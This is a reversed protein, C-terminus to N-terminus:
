TLLFQHLEALHPTIDIGKEALWTASGYTDRYREGGDCILTVVSGREGNARMEKIIQVAAAMNTGTSGGVDRRTAERVWHMAAISLADPVQTMRDIVTPLFSPEVRPRGIGEIRSGSGPHEDGSEWSPYFASGEPDAVCLRTQHRRYRIYRGITASTGGTGAGVVIWSPEPHRELSMQQFISEAINNNGRWDTAREAYTFQDMYHGGTEAALRHSEAYITGPDDVLHCKGGYFEIIERKEPSTTAPIVAIFPLGLLRAFYAESVATSGSSAEIITTTPGIWGNALGYLFLSRALRHKLSGTPHVSEDKLYLDVGWHSPLPFVHLHTDCSRNADAEVARIADATWARTVPDHRDVYKM